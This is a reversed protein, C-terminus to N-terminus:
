TAHNMRRILPNVNMHARLVAVAKATSRLGCFDSTCLVCVYIFDGVFRKRLSLNNLKDRANSKPFVVCVCM